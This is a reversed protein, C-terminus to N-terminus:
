GYIHSETIAKAGPTGSIEIRQGIEWEIPWYPVAVGELEQYLTLTKTAFKTKVPTISNVAGELEIGSGGGSTSGVEPSTYVNLWAPHSTVDQGPDKIQTDIDGAYNSIPTNGIQIDDQTLSLYGRSVMTML